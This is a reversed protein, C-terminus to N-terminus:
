KESAMRTEATMASLNIEAPMAGTNTGAPARNISGELPM